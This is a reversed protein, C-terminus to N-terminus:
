HKRKKAAPLGSDFESITLSRSTPIMKALRNPAPRNSGRTGDQSVTTGFRHKRAKKEQKLKEPDRETYTLSNTPPPPKPVTHKKTFSTPQDKLGFSKAFHGMHANM